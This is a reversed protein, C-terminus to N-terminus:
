IVEIKVVNNNLKLLEIIKNEPDENIGIIIPNPLIFYENVNIPSYIDTHGFIKAKELNDYLLLQIINSKDDKNLVVFCIYIDKIAPINKIKNISVKLM